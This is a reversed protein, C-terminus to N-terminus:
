CRSHAVDQSLEVILQRSSSGFGLLRRHKHLAVRTTPNAGQQSHRRPQGRGAADGARGAAALLRGAGSCTCCHQMTLQLQEMVTGDELHSFQAASAALVYSARHGAPRRCTQPHTRYTFSFCPPHEGTSPGFGAPAAVSPLALIGAGVTSGTILAVAGLVSGPADDVSPHAQPQAAAPHQAQQVTVSDVGADVGPKASEHAAEAASAAASSSNKDEPERGQQRRRRRWLAVANNAVIGRPPSITPNRAGEDLQRDATVVSDEAHQGARCRLKLGHTRPRLAQLPQRVAVGASSHVPRRGNPATSPQSARWSQQQQQRLCQPMM